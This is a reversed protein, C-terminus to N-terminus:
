DGGTLQRYANEMEAQKIVYLDQVKSEVNTVTKNLSKVQNKLELHEKMLPDFDVSQNILKKLRDFEKSSSFWSDFESSCSNCKLLYKIM